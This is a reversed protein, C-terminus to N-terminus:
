SKYNVFEFTVKFFKNIYPMYNKNNGSLVIRFEEEKLVEPLITILNQINQPFTIVNGKM